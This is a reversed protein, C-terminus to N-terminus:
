RGEKKGFEHGWLRYSISLFALTNPHSFYHGNPSLTEKPPGIALNLSLVLHNGIETQACFLGQITLRLGLDSPLLNVKTDSPEPKPSPYTWTIYELYTKSADALLYGIRFGLQFSQRLKKRQFSYGWTVPMMLQQSYWDRDYVYSQRYYFNTYYDSGHSHRHNFQYDLGHQLQWHKGLLWRANLGILGSQALGEHTEYSSYSHAFEDNHPLGWVGYGVEPGLRLNVQAFINSIGLLALLLILVYQKM